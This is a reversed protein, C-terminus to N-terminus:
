DPQGAVLPVSALKVRLGASPCDRRFLFRAADARYLEWALWDDADAAEITRARSAAEYVLPVWSRDPSRAELVLVALHAIAPPGALARRVWGADFPLTPDALAGAFDPAVALAPRMQLMAEILSRRERHCKRARDHTATALEVQGAAQALEHAAAWDGIVAALWPRDEPSDAWRAALLSVCDAMRRLVPGPDFYARFPTAFGPLGCDLVGALGLLHLPASLVGLPAAPTSNVGPRGPAAPQHTPLNGSGRLFPTETGDYMIEGETTFLAGFAEPYRLLRDRGPLDPRAALFRALEVGDTRLPIDPSIEYREGTAIHSVDLGEIGPEVRWGPLGHPAADPCHCSDPLHALMETLGEKVQLLIAVIVALWTLTPPLLTGPPPLAQVAAPQEAPAPYTHGMEELAVALRDARSRLQPPTFSRM